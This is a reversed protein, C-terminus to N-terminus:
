QSPVIPRGSTTFVMAGTGMSRVHLAEVMPPNSASAAQWSILLNAGSGGSGDSEPILLEYTAMPSLTRPTTVLEKLRNGFTDYYVSSTVQIAHDPDINRISVLISVATKMPEGRRGFDGHLVNSYIPLYLTQGTSRPWAIEGAACASFMSLCLLALRPSM